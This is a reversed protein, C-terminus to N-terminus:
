RRQPALGYHIDVQRLVWGVRALGDIVDVELPERDRTLDDARAALCHVFGNWVPSSVARIVEFGRRTAKVVRLLLDQPPAGNRRLRPLTGLVPIDVAGFRHPDGEVVVHAMYARGVIYAGAAPTLAPIPRALRALYDVALPSTMASLSVVSAMAVEVESDLDRAVPGDKGLSALYADLNAGAPKVAV